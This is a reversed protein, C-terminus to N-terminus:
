GRGGQQPKFSCCTTVHGIRSLRLWSGHCARSFSLRRVHTMRSVPQLAEQAGATPIPRRAKHAAAEVSCRACLGDLDACCVAALRSAALWMLWAQELMLCSAQGHCQQASRESAPRMGRGCCACARAQGRAWVSVRACVCARVRACARLMFCCLWTCRNAAAEPGLLLAWAARASAQMLLASGEGGKDAPPPPRSPVGGHGPGPGEGKGGGGQGPRLGGALGGVPDARADCASPRAWWLRVIPHLDRLISQALGQM